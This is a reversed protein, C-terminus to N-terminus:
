GLEQGVIRRLGVAGRWAGLVEGVVDFPEPGGPDLEALQERRAGVDHRRRVGIRELAQLVVALRDGEGLDLFNQAILEAYPERAGKGRDVLPREGGRRDRLHVLRPQVVPAIDRELHLAGADARLHQGIELRHVVDRAKEFAVGLEAPTKREVLHEIFEPLREQALEIEALLRHVEDGEAAIELLNGLDDDRLRHHVVAGRAHQRHLENGAGLDGLHARERAKLEVALAEGIRQEAGVELLHQAVAHEVGIRM